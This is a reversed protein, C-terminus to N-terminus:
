PTFAELIPAEMDLYDREPNYSPLKGPKLAIYIVGILIVISYFLHKKKLISQTKIYVILFLLKIKFTQVRVSLIDLDIIKM